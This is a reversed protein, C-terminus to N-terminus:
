KSVLKNYIDDTDPAMILKKIYSEEKLGLMLRSLLRIYKRDEVANTVIMFVLHVPKKDIANWDLGEEIRAISIISQKINAIRAHPIAVGNGIGTSTEKERAFVAAKISEAHDEDMDKNINDILAKIVQEKTTKVFSLVRNPSMYSSLDFNDTM